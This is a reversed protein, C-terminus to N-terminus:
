QLVVSQGQPLDVNVADSLEAEAVRGVNAVATELGLRVDADLARLAEDIKSQPVRYSDSAAESDFRRTMEVVAADGRLRVESLIQAVSEELGHPASQLARVHAALGAVATDSTDSLELRRVRV